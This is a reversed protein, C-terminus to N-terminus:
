KALEYGIKGGYLVGELVIFGATAPMALVVLSGVVAGCALGFFNKVTKWTSSEQEVEYDASM